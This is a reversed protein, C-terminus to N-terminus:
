QQASEKEQSSTDSSTVVVTSGGSQGTSSDVRALAPLYNMALDYCAKRSSFSTLFYEQDGNETQVKIFISNPFIKM